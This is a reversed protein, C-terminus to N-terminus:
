KGSYNQCVGYKNFSYVKGSIKVKGTVKVGNKLYYMKGNIKQWGILMAGKANFYYVKGSVKTWGTEVVGKANLYYKKGNVKVWGTKVVGNTGLYYTKGNIKKWGTQVAGKANLHYRKGNVKIWGTKVAGNTGLYYTKGQYKFWGTRLAGKRDFFYRKGDIKQWGTVKQGNKFYSKKGDKTQWGTVMKGDEGFFYKSGDVTQWGTKMNGKEDFYYKVGAIKTLGTDKEGDANIHWTKGAIKMWTNKPYTNNEKPSNSKIHMCHGETLRHGCAYCSPWRNVVGVNRNNHCYIKAYGNADWGVFLLTHVFPKGDKENPCYLLIPDGAAIEGGKVNELKIYGQPDMPIVIEQINPNKALMNHLASAHDNYESMGGVKLCNSVFEACQWGYICQNRALGKSVDVATHERAFKIAAAANYKAGSIATVEGVWVGNSKFEHLKGEVTMKGTYTGKAKTIYYWKENVKVWGTKLVGKATFYYRKGDITRWGTLMTGMPGFYYQKGDITKWGTQMAGMPGFYYTKGNITNWGTVKKGNKYYYKKEGVTKWGNKVTKAANLAISPSVYASETQVGVGAATFAAAEVPQQLSVSMAGTLLVAAFGLKWSKRMERRM